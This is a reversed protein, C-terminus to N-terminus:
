SSKTYNDYLLIYKIGAATNVAIAATADEVGANTAVGSTIVAGANTAGGVVDFIVANTATSAVDIKIGTAATDTSNHDILLGTGSNGDAIDIELGTNSASTSEVNIEVINGTRLSAIKVADTSGTSEDDIELAYNGATTCNQDIRLSKGTGAQSVDVVSNNGTTTGNVDLYGTVTLTDTSADGFSLNGSISFDGSANINETNINKATITGSRWGFKRAM